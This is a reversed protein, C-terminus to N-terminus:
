WEAPWALDRVLETPLSFPFDFGGIWPGPRALLKEFEAFTALLEIRQLNLVTKNLVAYAATIPKAARPACTFDVGYIRM